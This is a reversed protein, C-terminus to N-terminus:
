QATIQSVTIGTNMSANQVQLDFALTNNIFKQLHFPVETGEVNQYNSYRVEVPIDVLADNDPHSNYVYSVPLLTTADLYVDVQTLHKMLVAEDNSANPSLQYASLHFVDAGNRTEHGVFTFVSATSSLLNGFTLVPAWGPDVFLNHLAMIHSVGDLGVWSGSHVGNVPPSVIESLTGDRFTMDLRYSASLGKYSVTGEENESGGIEEITGTLTVDNIASKGSLSALSNQLLALPQPNANTM